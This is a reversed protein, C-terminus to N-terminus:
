LKIKFNFVGGSVRKYKLTPEWCMGLSVSWLLPPTLCLPLVNVIFTRWLQIVIRVVTTLNVSTDNPYEISNVLHHGRIIGGSVWGKWVDNGRWVCLPAIHYISSHESLIERTKYSISYFINGHWAVHDLQIISRKNEWEVLNSNHLLIM